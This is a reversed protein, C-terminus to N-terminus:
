ARMEQSRRRTHEQDSKCRPKHTCDAVPATLALEDGAATAGFKNVCKFFLDLSHRADVYFREHSGVYALMRAEVDKVTMGATLLRKFGASCKARAMFVFAVKYRTGWIDGWSKFLGAIQQGTTDEGNLLAELDNAQVTLEEASKRMRAIIGEVQKRKDTAM